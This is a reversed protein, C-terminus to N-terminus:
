TGGMVKTTLSPDDITAASSPSSRASTSSV